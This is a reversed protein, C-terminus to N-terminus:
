SNNKSQPKPNEVNTSRWGIIEGNPFRVLAANANSTETNGTGDLHVITSLGPKIEIPVVVPHRFTDYEETVAQLLYNGPSLKVLTPSSDNMGKANSVRKIFKGNADFISYNGHASTHLFERQLSNDEPSFERSAVYLQMEVSVPALERASYVQLNGTDARQAIALPSPGVPDLRTGMPKSVCGTVCCLSFGVLYINLNNM